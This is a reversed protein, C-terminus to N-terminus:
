IKCNWVDILVEIDKAMSHSYNEIHEQDMAHIGNFWRSYIFFFSELMSFIRELEESSTCQPRQRCNESLKLMAAKLGNFAELATAHEHIEDSLRVLSEDTLGKYRYTTSIDNIVADITDLNKDDIKDTPKAPTEAQQKPSDVPTSDLLQKHRVGELIHLSKELAINKERLQDNSQELAEKALSLETNLQEIEKYHRVVLQENIIAQTVSYLTKLLVEHSAPKLIFSGIGLRLLKLLYDTEDHASMVIIPQNPEQEHIAKIMDIGNMKPMNVDTIVLDYPKNSAELKKNYAQLGAEGNEATDVQRFLVSFFENMKSRLEEDDEVFLLDLHKTNNRLQNLISM